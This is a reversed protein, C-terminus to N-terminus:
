RVPDSYFKLFASSLDVNAGTPQLTQMGTDTEGSKPVPNPIVITTEREASDRVIMKYYKNKADNIGEARDFAAWGEIYRHPLISDQIEHDFYSNLKILVATKLSSVQLPKALWFTGRGTLIKPGDIGNNTQVDLAYVGASTLNISKLPKWPGYSTDSIFLFYSNIKSNIEQQNTIQMYLLYGIPSATLGHLGEYVAMFLGIPSNGTSVIATRISFSFLRVDRFLFIYTVTIISALGILAVTAIQRTSPGLVRSPTRRAKSQLPKSQLPKFRDWLWITATLSALFLTLVALGAIAIWIPPQSDYWAQVMAWITAIGAIMIKKWGLFEFIDATFKAHEGWAYLRHILKRLLMLM